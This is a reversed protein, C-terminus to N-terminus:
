GDLLSNQYTDEYRRISVIVSVANRLTAFVLLVMVHCNEDPSGASTSTITVLEFLPVRLPSKEM